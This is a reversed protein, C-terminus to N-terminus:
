DLEEKSDRHRSRTFDTEVPASREDGVWLTCDAQSNGKIIKWNAFFSNVTRFNCHRSTVDQSVRRSEALDKNEASANDQHHSARIGSHFHTSRLLCRLPIPVYISRTTKQIRHASFLRARQPRIFNCRQACRDSGHREVSARSISASCEGNLTHNTAHSIRTLFNVVSECLNSYRKM